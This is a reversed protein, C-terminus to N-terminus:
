AEVVDLVKKGKLRAVWRTAAEGRCRTQVTATGDRRITIDTKVCRGRIYDASFRLEGHEYRLCDFLDEVTFEDGEVFHMDSVGRPRADAFSLVALCFIFGFGGWEHDESRLDEEEQEGLHLEIRVIAEDGGVSEDIKTDIIDFNVLSGTHILKYGATRDTSAMQM